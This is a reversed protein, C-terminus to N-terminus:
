CWLMPGSSLCLSQMCMLGCCLEGVGVGTVTFGREQGTQEYTRSGQQFQRAARAYDQNGPDMQVARKIQDLALMTNGAGHNAVACLYYWRANRGSSPINMLIGAAQKYQGANINSIAARVEANDSASPEPHIPGGTGGMGGFIEEFDFGFGGVWDYPNGSPGSTTYGDQGSGGYGYGSSGGSSGNPGRYGGASASGGAGGASGYGSSGGASGRRAYKEPNTIRDYAENIENMRKAADPDNPNLDPHNERAKKRYAKKIEDPTASESVGLVEYPSKSM